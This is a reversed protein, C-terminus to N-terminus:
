LSSVDRAGLCNITARCVRHYSLSGGTVTAKRGAGACMQVGEGVRYGRVCM